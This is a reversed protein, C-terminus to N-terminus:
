RYDPSGYEIHYQHPEFGVFRVKKAAKPIGLEGNRETISQEYFLVYGSRCKLIEADEPIDIWQTTNGVLSELRERSIFKMRPEGAM